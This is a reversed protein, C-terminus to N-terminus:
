ISKPTVPPNLTSSILQQFIIQNQLWLHSNVPLLSTWFFFGVVQKKHGTIVDRFETIESQLASVFFLETTWLLSSGKLHLQQQKSVCLESIVCVKV